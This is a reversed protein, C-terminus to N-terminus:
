LESEKLREANEAIDWARIEQRIVEQLDKTSFPLNYDAVGIPKNIDRLAVEVEVHDKDACLIIGISPNEDSMRVQEDLLGLYHNMKGVYEPEFEGIKLDIAILSRLKRHFFLLDVFYDKKGLSLRYQNGIFTFGFGLELLFFKIKEVIKSELELEKIPQTIGLFDLTYTNKLIEDAQEQLHDPLATSFNHHKPLLKSKGYADAKIFNLLVDRTWGMKVASEIYYCAEEISKSKHFIQIHHSWSLISAEKPLIMEFVAVTRQLKQDKNFVAVSHRLKEDEDLVAIRRPLKEISQSYFEYFRKMDWLNRPSFGSMNPFESKLDASLRNVVSSGYGEAIGKETLHKGINWYMEIMSNNIRNAIVVRTSKIEAIIQRLIGKYDQINSGQEM